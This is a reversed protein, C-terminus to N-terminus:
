NAGWELGSIYRHASIAATAGDGAVTIVQAASNQRIDGAAFIGPIDTAMWIDTPVHGANDLRLTERLYLTNPDLGILVFLASLSVHSTEGTVTDRVNVGTVSGEGVIEEVKTNWRVIIKPSSLVREQLAKQSRFADRRHFLVVQSAYETLTLSEDMSSDGGGVVGIVKDQFFPGDCTACHSVGKGTLEKEGPIGLTKLSSGNAIIVAKAKYKGDATSVIKYSGEMSIATAEAMLFEVGADMAQEQMLPGLEFGTTGQPFGPYNEIKDANIIQGGGMLRELVLTSHGYRMAFLGATLGASGGGIVIVDYNQTM